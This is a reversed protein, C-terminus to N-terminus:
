SLRGSLYRSKMADSPLALGQGSLQTESRVLIVLTRKESNRLFIRSAIDM